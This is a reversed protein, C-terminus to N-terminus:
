IDGFESTIDNKIETSKISAIKLRSDVTMGLMSSYKQIESSYYKQIKIRPNEIYNTAGAKNTYEVVESEEDLKKTVEVYKSFANCYIGLNNYDLNCIVSLSKYEKVLRKWEKKAVSDRLWKPPKELQSTDGRALEDQLEKENKQEQTLNGKQLNLPKRPRAM